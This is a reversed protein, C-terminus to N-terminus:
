SSALLRILWTTVSEGSSPPEDSAVTSARALWVPVWAGAVMWTDAVSRRSPRSVAAAPGASSSSTLPPRSNVPVPMWVEARVPSTVLVAPPVASVIAALATTVAFISSALTVLALSALMFAWVILPLLV